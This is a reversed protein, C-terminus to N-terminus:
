LIVSKEKYKNATQTKSLDGYNTRPYIILPFDTLWYVKYENIKNPRAQALGVSALLIIRYVM